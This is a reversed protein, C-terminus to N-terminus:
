DIISYIVVMITFCVRADSPDALLLSYKMIKRLVQSISGRKVKVPEFTLDKISQQGGILYDLSLLYKFFTVFSHPWNFKEGINSYGRFSPCIRFMRKRNKHMFIIESILTDFNKKLEFQRGRIEQLQSHTQSVSVRRPLSWCVPVLSRLGVSPSLDQSVAYM